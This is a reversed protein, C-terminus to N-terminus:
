SRFIWETLGMLIFSSVMLPMNDLFIGTLINCGALGYLWARPKPKLKSVTVAQFLDSNKSILGREGLIRLRKYAHHKKLGLKERLKGCTMPTQLAEWIKRDISKEFALHDEQFFFNKLNSLFSM